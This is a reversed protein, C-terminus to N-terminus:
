FVREPSLEETTKDIFEALLGRDAWRAKTFRVGVGAEGVGHVIWGVLKVRQAVGPLDLALTIPTGVPPTKTTQLLIGRRSLNLTKGWVKEGGWACLVDLAVSVRRSSRRESLIMGRSMDLLKRVKAATLPKTLFFSVGAQFARQMADPETNATLMVIPVAANRHSQRIHQAVELGDMEPMMWDLFVADVKEGDILEAAARSSQVCTPIADLSELTEAILELAALDDDVVLIKAKSTM